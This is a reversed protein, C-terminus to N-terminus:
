REYGTGEMGYGPHGLGKREMFALGEGKRCEFVKMDMFKEYFPVSRQWDATMLVSRRLHPMSEVVEQVCKVLWTGLGKGQYTPDVWVDTLYLFTTFDTVCRAIGILKRSSAQNTTSDPAEAQCDFVGFCLSNDLMERMADEPLPSAWYFGDHAFMEVLDSIPILSSDTSILFPGKTWSQQRLRSATSAM